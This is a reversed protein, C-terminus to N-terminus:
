RAAARTRVPVAEAPSPPSAIDPRLRGLTITGAILVAASVLAPVISRPDAPLPEGLLIVGALVSTVPDVVQVGAYAVSFHGVAYSRQLLVIACVLLAPIALTFWHFLHSLNGDFTGGVVRVFTSVSATVAGAGISTLLAKATGRARRASLECVAVVAGVCALFSLAGPTSLEPRSHSQPILLMIGLLGVSVAASGLVEARHPRRGHLVAALPVAFVLTTVSVPQILVLPAFSLALAHLAAGLFGIAGGIWWRRRRVLKFTAGGHAAEYQQIAAGGAYGLAGVLAISVGLWM